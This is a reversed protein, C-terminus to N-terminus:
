SLQDFYEKRTDHSQIGGSDILWKGMQHSNSGVSVAFAGVSDSEESVSTNEETTEEVTKAKHLPKGTGQEM